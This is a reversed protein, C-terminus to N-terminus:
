IPKGQNPPAPTYPCTEAVINYHPCTKKERKCVRFPCRDAQAKFATMLVKRMKEFKDDDIM